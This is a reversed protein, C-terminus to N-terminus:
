VVVFREIEMRLHPLEHELLASTAFEQDTAEGGSAVAESMLAWPGGTLEFARWWDGPVASQFQQGDDLDAGLVARALVGDPSITLVAIPCGRHFYYLSDASLRHLCAIPADTALLHNVVRPVMGGGVAEIPPLSRFWGGQPNPALSLADIVATHPPLQSSLM